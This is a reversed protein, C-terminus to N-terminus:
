TCRGAQIGTAAVLNNGDRCESYYVTSDETAFGEVLQYVGAPGNGLTRNAEVSNGRVLNM